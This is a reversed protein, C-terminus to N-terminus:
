SLDILPLPQVTALRVTSGSYESHTSFFPLSLSALTVTRLSLCNGRKMMTAARVLGCVAVAAGFGYDQDKPEIMLLGSIAPFQFIYLVIGSARPKKCDNLGSTTAAVWQSMTSAGGKVAIRASASRRSPEFTSTAACSTAASGPSPANVPSTEAVM